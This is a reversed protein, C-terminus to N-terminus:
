QIPTFDMKIIKAWVKQILAKLEDVDAQKIEFTLRKPDNEGEGIFDLSFETAEFGGFDPSIGALLKYFVLQRYTSGGWDELVQRETKPTGTKYDIIHVHAGSEHYLDFRDLIGKLRIGSTGTPDSDNKLRGSLKKELGAILPTGILHQEYYRPLSELGIHEWFAQDRATLVERTKLTHTFINLFDPLPLEENARKRIGWERLASHVASGYAFQPEKARPVSLLDQWLFKKPDELFNNLATVSLEYTELKRLIFTKLADDIELDLKPRLLTMAHQPDRIDCSQEPLTGGEPFFQSPAADQQRDGRTVQEPCFLILHRKARTWAVYALRREDQLTLNSEDETSFILHDPLSLGPSGRKHDWHKERFNAIFVVEFELGKSAHATMLQVADDILHPVSFTLRLGYRQRYTIENLLHKLHFDPQEYSRRKAYEYFEQLAIYELPVTDDESQTILGSQRLLQELVDPLTLTDKQQSFHLITDRAALLVDPKRLAFEERQELTVSVDSLPRWSEGAEKRKYNEERHAAWLAGLDAPHCRFTDCALAASFSADDQPSDIAKLMSLCELVKPQRLVDLKGSMQVPIDQTRLVDYLDLLEHNTRTFVAIDGPQLGQELFDVIREGIAFGEVSDSVPRLLKPPDGLPNKLASILNKEVGKVNGALRDANNAILSGAADLIPQTSRYSHTLTIIPADPFRRTFQMMSEVSAGQFRYIAQDDDGVVFINPQGEMGEPLITLLEIMKNQAGNTDQYEDVLIYQFREQLSAKLWEEEKLAKIVFLLMDDYDYLGRQKMEEDYRKFISCFEEFQTALRLNRKHAKTEPKSKTQMEERYTAAAECLQEHSIGERKIESIRSLIDSTRGYRDKPNIIVTGPQLEDIIENLLQFRQVDTIHNIQAFDDFVDPHAKLIDNNCFGHITSVTVGYADPGILSRLRDRMATAGSVSFTLCLINYPRMHTCKLINAVRMAVVQTKGTGPGAVVMVPGEITDVARKQQENLKQYAVDFGGRRSLQDEPALKLQKRAARQISAKADVKQEPVQPVHAPTPM